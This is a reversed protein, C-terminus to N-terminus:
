RSAGTQFHLHFYEYTWKLSSLVGYFWSVPWCNSPEIDFKRCSRWGMALLWPFRVYHIVDFHVGNRYQTGRISSRITFTREDCKEIAFGVFHYLRTLLRIEFEMRSSETQKTVWWPSEKMHSFPRALSCDPFLISFHSTGAYFISGALCSVAFWEVRWCISTRHDVAIRPICLLTDSRHWNGDFHECHNFITGFIEFQHDIFGVSDSGSHSM